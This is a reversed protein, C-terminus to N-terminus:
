FEPELEDLSIKGERPFAAVGLPICIYLEAAFLSAEILNRFYWNKPMLRTRELAIMAMPPLFITVNFLVRTIATQLVAKKACNKSVGVAEKTEPDVVDIGKEMETKRMVYANMFGAISLAWFSSVGNVIYKM